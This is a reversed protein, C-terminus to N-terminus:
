VFDVYRDGRFAIAIWRGPEVEGWVDKGDVARLPAVADKKLQGVLTQEVGPGSRINLADVTVRVHLGGGGTETRANREGKFALAIWKNADIQVWVDTGDVKGITVEAGSPLDGIDQYNVGAGNRINLASKAKARQGVPQPPAVQCYKLLDDYSGSFWNLDVDGAIGPAHGKGTYQWIKWTTWGAPLVADGSGYSAVWLDCQAWEASPLVFKNWFWKATYVIPKRGFRQESLHLCDRVCPTIQQATLKDDREIDLVPPLDWKHGSL